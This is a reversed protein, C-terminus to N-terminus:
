YEDWDEPRMTKKIDQAIPMSVRKYLTMHGGMDSLHDDYAANEIEPPAESPLEKCIQERDM